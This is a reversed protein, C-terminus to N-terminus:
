QHAASRYERQREAITNASTRLFSEHLRLTKTSDEPGAGILLKSPGELLRKMTTSEEYRLGERPAKGTQERNKSTTM